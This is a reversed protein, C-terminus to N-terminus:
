RCGIYDAAGGDGTRAPWGGIVILDFGVVAFGWGRTRGFVRKGWKHSRCVCGSMFYDAMPICVCVLNNKNAMLLCVCLHNAAMFYM